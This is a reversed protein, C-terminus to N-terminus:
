NYGGASGIAEDLIHLIDWVEQSLQAPNYEQSDQYDKLSQEARELQPYITPASSLDKGALFDNLLDEMARLYEDYASLFDELAEQSEALKDPVKLDDLEAEFSAIEEGADALEGSFDELDAQDVIGNSAEGLERSSAELGSWGDLVTEQYSSDNVTEQNSDDNATEQYSNDTGEGCGAFLLAVLIFALALLITVAGSRSGKVRM